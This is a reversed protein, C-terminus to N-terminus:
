KGNVTMQGANRQREFFLMEILKPVDDLSASFIM